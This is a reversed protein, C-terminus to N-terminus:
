LTISLGQGVVVENEPSSHPIWDTLIPHLFFLDSNPLARNEPEDLAQGPALFHQDYSNSNPKRRAYGLLGLSFLTEFPRTLDSAADLDVTSPRGLLFEDTIDRINAPTLIGRDVYSRIFDEIDFRQDLLPRVEALYQNAIHGQAIHVAERVSAEEFGLEPRHDLLVAGMHIIDRPRGLTHRFIYQRVDEGVGVADNRIEVAEGFFARWPNSKRLGPEMLLDNDLDKIRSEFVALIESQTYKLTAVYDFYQLSMEDLFQNYIDQRISTFVHIHRHIIGIERVARFQGYMSNFWLEPENSYYDDLNDLFVYIPLSIMSAINQLEQNQRSVEHIDRYRGTDLRDGLETYYYYPGKPFAGFGSVYNDIAKRMAKIRSLEAESVDYRDVLTAHQDDLGGLLLQRLHDVVSRYISHKWVSAWALHADSTKEDSVMHNFRKGVHQAAALRDVPNNSDSPICVSDRKNRQDIAKRLLLLSKGSGKPGVLYRKDNTELFTRINHNKVITGLSEPTALAADEHGFSRKM